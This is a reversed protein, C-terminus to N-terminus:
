GRKKGTYILQRRSWPPIQTCLNRLSWLEWQWCWSSFHLRAKPHLPVGKSFKLYADRRGRRYMYPLSIYRHTHTQLSTIDIYWVLRYNIRARSASLYWTVIKGNNVPASAVVTQWLRIKGGKSLVVGLRGGGEVGGRGEDWYELLRDCFDIIYTAM